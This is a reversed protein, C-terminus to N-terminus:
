YYMPDVPIDGEDNIVELPSGQLLRTQLKIQLIELEPSVYNEEKHKDM